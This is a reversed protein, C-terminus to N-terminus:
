DQIQNYPSISASKFPLLVLLAPSVTARVTIPPCAGVVPLDRTKVPVRCNETSQRAARASAQMQWMSGATSRPCLNAPAGEEFPPHKPQPPNGSHCITIPLEKASSEEYLQGTAVRTIHHMNCLGCARVYSVARNLSGCFAIRAEVWPAAKCSSNLRGRSTLQLPDECVARVHNYGPLVLAAGNRRSKM